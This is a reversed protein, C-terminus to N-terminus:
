GMYPDLFMKQIKFHVNIPIRSGGWANDSQSYPGWFFHPREGQATPVYMCETVHTRRWIRAISCLIAFSKIPMYRLIWVLKQPGLALRVVHPFLESNWGVNNKCHQFRNRSGEIWTLIVKFKM